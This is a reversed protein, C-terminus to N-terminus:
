CFLVCTYMGLFSPFLMTMKNCGSSTDGFVTFYSIETAGPYVLVYKQFESSHNTM